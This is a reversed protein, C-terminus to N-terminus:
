QPTGPAICAIHRRVFRRLDDDQFRDIERAATTAELVIGAAKDGAAQKAASEGQGAAERLQALAAQHAQEIECRAHELWKGAQEREADLKDRIEKEVGLIATLTDQEM